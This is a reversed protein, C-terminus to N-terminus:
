GFLKSVSEIPYDSDKPNVRHAFLTQPTQSPSPTKEQNEETYTIKTSLYHSGLNITLGLLLGGVVESATHFINATIILPVAQVLFYLSAAVLCLGGIITLLKKSCEPYNGNKYHSYASILMQNFLTFTTLMTRIHGSPDFLGFTLSSFLINFGIVILYEMMFQKTFIKKIVEQFLKLYPAQNKQKNHDYYVAAAFILGIVVGLCPIILWWAPSKIATQVMGDIAKILRPLHSVADVTHHSVLTAPLAVLAVLSFSIPISLNIRSLYGKQRPKQKGAM